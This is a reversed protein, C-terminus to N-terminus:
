TRITEHEKIHRELKCHPCTIYIYIYLQKKYDAISWWKKCSLCNFHYLIEISFMHYEETIM